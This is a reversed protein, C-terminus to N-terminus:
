INVQSEQYTFGADRNHSGLGVAEVGLQGADLFMAQREKLLVEEGAAEKGLEELEVLIYSLGGKVCGSCTRPKFVEALEPYLSHVKSVFM